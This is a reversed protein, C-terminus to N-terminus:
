RNFVPGLTPVCGIVPADTGAGGIPFQHSNHGIDLQAMTAGTSAITKTEIILPATDGCGPRITDAVTCWHPGFNRRLTVLSLHIVGSVFCM